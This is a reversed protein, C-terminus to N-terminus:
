KQGGSLTNIPRLAQDNKVGLKALHSRLDPMIAEPFSVKMHELPTRWLVLQDVHHQSFYGIRLKPSRKVIGDRPINEGLLLKLLSSKGAGNPGLLVCRSDMNVSFDLDKFLPPQAPYGFTVNCIQISAHSGTLAGPEPFHFAFEEEESPVVVREDDMRQLMKLRSQAMAARKANYRFKDVFKQM